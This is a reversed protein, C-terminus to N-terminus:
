IAAAPFVSVENRLVRSLQKNVDRVYSHDPDGGGVRQPMDSAPTTWVKPSTSVYCRIDDKKM